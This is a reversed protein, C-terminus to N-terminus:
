KIDTLVKFQRYEGIKPDFIDRSEYKFEVNKGLLSQYTNPLDIKSPIQNLWIFKSTVGNRERLSFMVFFDSDIKSIVGAATGSVVGKNLVTSMKMIVNPCQTMMSAGLISGIKEGDKGNTFSLNFEKQFFEKEQKNFSQFMCVAVQAYAGDKQLDQPIKEVCECTKKAVNEVHDQAMSNLSCTILFFFSLLKKM